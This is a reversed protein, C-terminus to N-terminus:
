VTEDNENQMPVTRAKRRSRVDIVLWLLIGVAVSATVGYLAFYGFLAIFGISPDAPYLSTVILTGFFGLVGFVLVFAVLKPSRRLVVDHTDDEAPKAM